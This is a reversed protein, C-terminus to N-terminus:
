DTQEVRLFREGDQVRICPFNDSGEALFCLNGEADLRFRNTMAYGTEEDETLTILEGDRSWTGRGMYSSLHGEYFGYSGNESLALLFDGGFGEKEYQYAGAASGRAPEALLECIGQTVERYHPPFRNEGWANVTRGDAFVVTLSFSTGDLVDPNNEHFGDWAAVGYTELLTEMATVTEEPLPLMESGGLSLRFGADTRTVDYGWPAMEGGFWLSLSVLRTREGMGTEMEGLATPGMPMMLAATMLLLLLRKM